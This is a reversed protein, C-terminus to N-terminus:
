IQTSPEEGPSPNKGATSSMEKVVASEKKLVVRNKVPSLMMVLCFCTFSCDFAIVNASGDFVALALISTLTSMLSLISWIATSKLMNRISESEIRRLSLRLPRLFAWTGGVCVSADIMFIALVLGDSMRFVCKYQEDTTLGETALTTTLVQFTGTVGVVVKGVNIIRPNMFASHNVVEMRLVIFTWLLVRHLSYAAASLKVSLECYKTDGFYWELSTNLLGLATLFGFFMCSLGTVSINLVIKKEKKQHNIRVIIFVACLVMNLIAFFSHAEKPMSILLPM